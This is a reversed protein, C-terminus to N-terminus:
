LEDYAQADQDSAWEGLGSQLSALYDHDLAEAKRLKVEGRVIEFAISDGAKLALLERVEKPVTAQYKSTLKSVLARTIGSM